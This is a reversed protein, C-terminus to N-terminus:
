VGFIYLELFFKMPWGYWRRSEKAVMARDLLLSLQKNWPRAKRKKSRKMIGKQKQTIFFCIIEIGQWHALPMGSLANRPGSAPFVFLRGTKAKDLKHRHWEANTV